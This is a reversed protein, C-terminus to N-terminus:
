EDDFSISEYAGADPDMTRDKGLIDLPVENATSPDGLDNAASEEGIILDNDSPARFDPGENILVSEHIDTDEFDYLPSGEFQDEFDQFKILTNKFSVNFAAEDNNNMILERRENGYIISNEFSAEVLDATLTDEETVFFNNILVSPFQRFSQQWYNAITSHKFEYKGGFSLFLSSQGCNNVVLNEASIHATRGLIGVNSCNYIQTNDISLTPDQLGDNSEMLIGVTANKITTHSFNHDTSGATLWITSWQGPVDSFEPELRDSEFIIQNEMLEEDESPLGNAQVSAQDAAIIGSNEHFHVRAGAEINLTKGSPVGAFGYIVYPKENTFTLNEDDLFFGEIRIEEGEDTTGLLLSETTGDDFRDPFLFVADKILSILNVSQANEETDFVIQDEYLFQTGANTLEEIDATVEVFVFLSDNALLTIDNFSKGPIGDVNLRYNSSEGNALTIEPINIDQDSRNYVKFQYTSSSIDSFVTDLFVTDQSFELEGQSPVTEFDNRCSSFLIMLLLLATSGLFSLKKKNMNKIM